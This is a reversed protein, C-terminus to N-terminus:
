VLGRSGIDLRTMHAAATPWFISLNGATLSLTGPRCIKVNLVQLLIFAPPEAILRSYLTSFNGAAQADFFSVESLSM